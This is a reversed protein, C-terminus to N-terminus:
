AFRHMDLLVLFSTSFVRYLLICELLLCRAEVLSETRAAAMPVFARSGCKRLNPM